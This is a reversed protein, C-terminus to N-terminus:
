QERQILDAMETLIESAATELEERIAEIDGYHRAISAALRDPLGELLGRITAGVTAMAIKAEQLDIVDGAERDLALNEREAKARRLKLTEIRMMAAVAENNVQSKAPPEIEGAKKRDQYDKQSQFRPDATSDWLEKPSIGNELLVAKGQAPLRGNMIATSVAQRVVGVERAFAAQTITTTTM